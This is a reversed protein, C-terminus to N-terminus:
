GDSDDTKKPSAMTIVLSFRGARKYFRDDTM